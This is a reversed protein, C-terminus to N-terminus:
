TGLGEFYKVLDERQKGSPIAGRGAALNDVLHEAKDTAPIVATIAPNGLLYKLFVQAWSAAGIEQAVPPLPKGKV